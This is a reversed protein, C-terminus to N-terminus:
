SRRLALRLLPVLLQDLLLVLIQRNQL